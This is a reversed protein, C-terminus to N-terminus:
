RPRGHENVYHTRHNFLGVRFQSEPIAIMVGRDELDDMRETIPEGDEDVLSDMPDVVTYVDEDSWYMDNYRASGPVDQPTESTGHQAAEQWADEGDYGPDGSKGKWTRGFPPNLVKEEVPRHFRDPLAERRQQCEICTTAMPFVDLRAEGIPQGCEECLGYEGRDMREMAIDIERLRRLNNSFLGLDKSREFMETGMDAPHNDYHADEQMQDGHSTFGLGTEEIMQNRELYFRREEELKQRFHALDM